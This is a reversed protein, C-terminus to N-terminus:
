SSDTAASRWKQSLCLRCESESGSIPDKSKWQQQKLTLPATTRWEVVKAGSYIRVLVYVAPIASVTHRDVSMSSSALRYERQLTGASSQLQPKIAYPAM